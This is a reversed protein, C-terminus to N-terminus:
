RETAIFSPVVPTVVIVMEMASEPMSPWEGGTSMMEAIIVTQLILPFSILVTRHQATCLSVCVRM